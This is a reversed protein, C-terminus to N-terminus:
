RTPSDKFGVVLTKLVLVTHGVRAKENMMTSGGPEVSPQSRPCRAHINADTSMVRAMRPNVYTRITPRNSTSRHLQAQSQTKMDQEVMLM